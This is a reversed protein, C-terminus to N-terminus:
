DPKERQVIITDPMKQRIIKNVLERVEERNEPTETMEFHALLEPESFHLGDDQDIWIGPAVRTKLQNRRLQNM